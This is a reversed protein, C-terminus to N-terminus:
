TKMRNVMEELKRMDKETRDHKDHLVKALIYNKKMFDRANKAESTLNALAAKFVAIDHQMSKFNSDSMVRHEDIKLTAARVALEFQHRERGLAQLDTSAEKKFNKFEKLAEYIFWVALGALGASFTQFAINWTM